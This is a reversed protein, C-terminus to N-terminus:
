NQVFHSITELPLPKKIFYDKVENKIDMDRLLATGMEEIEEPSFWRVEGIEDNGSQPAGSIEGVFILKVAHPFGAEIEKELDKRVISYIGLLGTPVFDYGTEEKVEKVVSYLPNDGIDIWGAPQNWKGQDPSAWVEKVLLIKGDKEIIAGAVAHVQTFVRKAM